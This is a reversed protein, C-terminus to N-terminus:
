KLEFNMLKLVFDRVQEDATRVSIPRAIAFPPLPVVNLVFNVSVDVDAQVASTPPCAESVQATYECDGAGNCAALSVAADVSQLDANRCASASTDTCEEVVEAAYATYTCMGAGLCATQSATEDLYGPHGLDVVDCAIADTTSCSETVPAVYAVYTCAQHGYSALGTQECSVRREDVTETNLDVGACIATAQPNCAEPPMGNGQYDCDGANGCYYVDTRWDDVAIDAALCQALHTPECREIVEDVLAVYTCVGAGLCNNQSVTADDSSIDAVPCSELHTAVCNEAITGEFAIYNCNSVICFGYVSLQTCGADMCADRSESKEGTLDTRPCTETDAAECNEQVFPVYTCDGALECNSKSLAIDGTIAPTIEALACSLITAEPLAAPVFLEALRQYTYECSGDDVTATSQYNIAVSDTCGTPVCETLHNVNGGVCLPRNGVAFLEDERRTWDSDLAERAARRLGVYEPVHVQPRGGTAASPVYDCGTQPVCAGDCMRYRFLPGLTDCAGVLEADACTVECGVEHALSGGEGPCTGVGGAVGPSLNGAVCAAFACSGDDKEALADYNTAQSDTCGLLGCRATSSLYGAECYPQAGVVGYGADCAFSCGCSHEIALGQSCTGYSGHAPAPLLLDCTSPYTELCMTHFSPWGAVGSIYVVCAAWWEELRVACDPSCVSPLGSATACDQGLCCISQVDAHISTFPTQAPCVLATDCQARARGPLLLLAAALLISKSVTPRKARQTREAPARRMMAAAPPTSAGVCGAERERHRM